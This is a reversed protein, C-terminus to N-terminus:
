KALVKMIFIAFLIAMFMTVDTIEVPNLDMIMIFSLMVLNKARPPLNHVVVLCFFYVFHHLIALSFFTHFCVNDSYVSGTTYSTGIM